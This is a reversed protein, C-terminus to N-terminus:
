GAGFQSTDVNALPGMIDGLGGGLLGPQPASGGATQGGGPTAGIGLSAGLMQAAVMDGNNVLSQYAMAMVVEPMRLPMEAIIRNREQLPDEILMIKERAYQMSVVPNPGQTLSATVQSRMLDDEPLSLKRESTIHYDSGIDLYSFDPLRFINGQGDTGNFDTVIKERVMGKLLMRGQEQDYLKLLKVYPELRLGAHHGTLTIALASLGGEPTGGYVTEQFTARHLAQLVAQLLPIMDPPAGPVDIVQVIDTALLTNVAGSGLELHRVTGDRTKVVVTPKAYKKVILGLTELLENYYNHLDRNAHNLAMGMHQVFERDGGASGRFNHGGVPGLLWPLEGQLHKDRAVETEELIVVNEVGDYFDRLKFTKYPDDAEVESHFASYRKNALIAGGAIQKEVVVWAWSDELQPGPYVNIPNYHRTFRFPSKGKEKPAVYVRSAFWGYNLFNFANEYEPPMDGRRFARTELDHKVGSMAREIRRAKEQEENQDDLPTRTWQPEQRTLIAAGLAVATHPMNDRVAVGGPAATRTVVEYMDLMRLMMDNRPKYYEVAKDALSIIEQTSRGGGDVNAL